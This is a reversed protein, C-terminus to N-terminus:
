LLAVYQLLYNNILLTSILYNKVYTCPVPRKKGDTESLYFAIKKAFITGTGARM